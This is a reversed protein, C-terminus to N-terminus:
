RGQSRANLLSENHGIKETHMFVNGCKNCYRCATNEDPIECWLLFNVHKQVITEGGCLPCMNSDSEQVIRKKEM